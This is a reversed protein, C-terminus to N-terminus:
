FKDLIGPSIDMDQQTSQMDGDVLHKRRPDLNEVPMQQIPADEIRSNSWHRGKDRTGSSRSNGSSSSHKDHGSSRGYGRDSTGGSSSEKGRFRSDRDRERERDVWERPKEWQSM